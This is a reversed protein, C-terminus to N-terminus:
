EPRYLLCRVFLALGLVLLIVGGGALFWPNWEQRCSQGTGLSSTTVHCVLGPGGRNLYAVVLVPM